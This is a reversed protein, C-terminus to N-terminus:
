TLPSVLFLDLGVSESFETPGTGKFSAVIWNSAEDWFIGCFATSCDGMESAPAYKIGAHEAFAHISEDGRGTGRNHLADRIRSATGKGFTDEALQGPESHATAALEESSTVAPKETGYSTSPVADEPTPDEAIIGVADRIATVEHEYVM